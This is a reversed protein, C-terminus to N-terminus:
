EQVLYFDKGNASVFFNHFHRISINCIRQGSNVKEISTIEVLGQPSRVKDGVKLDTIKTWKGEATFFPHPPTVKLNGNLLYYYDAEGSKTATVEASVTQGTEVDYALVMEGVQVDSIRKLSNDAMLVLTDCAFCPWVPMPPLFEKLTKITEEIDKKEQELEKIRQEIDDIEARKDDIRQPLDAAEEEASGVEGQAVGVSEELNSVQAQMAAISSHERSVQARLSEIQSTLEKKRRVVKDYEKWDVYQCGQAFPTMLITVLLLAIAIVFGKKAFKNGNSM